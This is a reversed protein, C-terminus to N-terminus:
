QGDLLSRRIRDLEELAALPTMAELDMGRIEELLPHPPTEFLSLQRSSTPDTPRIPLHRRGDEGLHDSELTGLIV